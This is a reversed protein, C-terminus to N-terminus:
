RRNPSLGSRQMCADMEEPTNSSRLCGSMASAQKISKDLGQVIEDRKQESWEIEPMEQQPPPAAAAPPRGGEAPGGAGAPPAMEAMMKQQFAQMIEACQKLEASNGSVQVCQKTKEMEPLSKEMMPLMHQKMQELMKARDIGQSPAQALAVIPVLLLTAVIKM